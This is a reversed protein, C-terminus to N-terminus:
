FQPGTGVYLYKNTKWKIVSYWMSNIVSYWMSNIVSYWMSNIVSYWM